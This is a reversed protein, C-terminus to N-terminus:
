IYDYKGDYNISQYSDNEIVSIADDDADDNASFDTHCNDTRIYQVSPSAKHQDSAPQRTTQFEDSGNM